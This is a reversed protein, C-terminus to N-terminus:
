ASAARRPDLLRHLGFLLAALVLDLAALGWNGDVGAQVGYPTVGRGLMALIAHDVAGGFFLGSSFLALKSWNM